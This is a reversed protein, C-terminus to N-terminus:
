LKKCCCDSSPDKQEQNEVDLIEIEQKPKPPLVYRGLLYNVAISYVIGMAVTKVIVQGVNRLTFGTGSCLSVRFISDLAITTLSVLNATLCASLIRGGDRDPPAIGIFGGLWGGFLSGVQCPCGPFM